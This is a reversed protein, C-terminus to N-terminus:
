AAQSRDIGAIRIWDDTFRYAIWVSQHGNANRNINNTELMTSRETLAACRRFEHPNDITLAHINTSATSRNCVQQTRPGFESNWDLCHANDGFGYTLSYSLSHDRDGMEHITLLKRHMSFAFRHLTAKVRLAHSKWHFYDVKAQQNNNNNNYGCKVERRKIHADRKKKIRTKKNKNLKMQVGNSFCMDKM